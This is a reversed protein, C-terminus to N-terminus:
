LESSETKNIQVEEIVESMARNAAPDTGPSATREDLLEYAGSLWFEWLDFLWSNLNYGYNIQRIWDIDTFLLRQFNRIDDSLNRTRGTFYAVSEKRARDFFEKDPGNIPSQRIAYEFWDIHLIADAFRFREGVTDLYAIAQKNGLMVENSTHYEPRPFNTFQKSLYKAYMESVRDLQDVIHRLLLGTMATYWTPMYTPYPHAWDADAVLVTAVLRGTQEPPKQENAKIAECADKRLDPYGNLPYDMGNAVREIYEAGHRFWLAFDKPQQLNQLKFVSM